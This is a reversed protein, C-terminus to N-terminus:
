LDLLSGILADEISLLANYKAIREGRMVGGAKIQGTNTGIALDVLVTDNTEGSRHSMIIHKDYEQCLKAAQLTETVTGIQNPKIIVANAAQQEIGYMIRSPNTAFLDDGVIQLRDGLQETMKVWGDWDDESLGDEISYLPYQKSLQEYYDILEQRTYENNNIKYRETHKDFLRSAAMDLALVVQTTMGTEDLAQMITNLAEMDDKFLASYGGEAGIGFFVNNRELIKACQHSIIVAMELASRFSEAGIPMIMCEQISLNNHAHMGGNIINFMAFPLSVREYDCLHAVLEYTELGEALAQAKLIAMSVALIANAGLRSKDHTGDLEIMKMDMDVVAPPYGILAPAIISEIQEIARHVGMGFLRGEDRMEKAEFTSVSTGSPVSATARIDNDLIVTCAITPQGLTNFIETARISKINM